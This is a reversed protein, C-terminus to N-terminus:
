TGGGNRIKHPATFTYTSNQTKHAGAMKEKGVSTNPDIYSFVRVGHTGGVARHPGANAFGRHVGVCWLPSFCCEATSSALIFKRIAKAVSLLVCGVVRDKQRHQKKM